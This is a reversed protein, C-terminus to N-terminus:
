FLVTYIFILFTSRPLSPSLQIGMSINESIRFSLSLYYLLSTYTHTYIHTNISQYLTYQILKTLIHLEWSIPNPAFNTHFLTVFISAVAWIQIINWSFIKGEKWEKETLLNLNSYKFLVNLLIFFLFFFPLNRKYTTCTKSQTLFNWYWYVCYM